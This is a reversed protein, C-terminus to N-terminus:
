AVKKRPRSRPMILHYGRRALEDTAAIRADDLLETPMKKAIRALSIRRLHVVASRLKPKALDVLLDALTAVRM